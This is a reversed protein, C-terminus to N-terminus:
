RGDPRQERRQKALVALLETVIRDALLENGRQTLHCPDLFLTQTEDRFVDTLDRFHERHAQLDAAAARLLPYGARVVDTLRAPVSDLVQIETATLPKSGPVAACPQLCHLYIFQEGLALHQLQRSSDAWLDVLRSLLEEDDHFREAPGLIRFDRQAADAATTL